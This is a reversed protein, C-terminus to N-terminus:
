CIDKLTELETRTLVIDGDILIKNNLINSVRSKINFNVLKAIEEDYIGDKCFVKHSRKSEDTRCTHVDFVNIANSFRRIIFQSVCHNKM